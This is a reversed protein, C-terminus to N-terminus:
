GCISFCGEGVEYLQDMYDYIIMGECCSEKLEVFVGFDVIGNVVGLFDEGVYKEMFEVQKYKISECEVDIVKCEQNFIYKCKEELQVVNEIYFSGKLLNKELICYVLVDSYCCILLIFYSYDLFGLGYYGINEIIYKVKVMICIVLLLLMKLVGDIEVRVIFCNYFKVIQELISVDMEFGLVKVFLVLEMVKDLDFEDYVCYVFFIKKNCVKEKCGIYVVVECNVLLMFDEILM